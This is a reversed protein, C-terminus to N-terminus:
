SKAETSTTRNAIVAVSGQITKAGAYGLFIVETYSQWMEVPMHGTIVLVTAAIVLFGGALAKESNFLAKLGEFM